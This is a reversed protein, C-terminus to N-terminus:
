SQRALTSVIQRARAPAPAVEPMEPLLFGLCEGLTLVLFWGLDWDPFPRFDVVVALLFHFWGVHIALRLTNGLAIPLLHMALSHTSPIRAAAVADLFRLPFAPFLRPWFTLHMSEAGFDGVTPPFLEKAPDALRFRRVIGWVVASAMTQVAALAALVAWPPLLILGAPIFIASPLGAVLGVLLALLGAGWWYWKITTAALQLQTIWLKLGVPSLGHM